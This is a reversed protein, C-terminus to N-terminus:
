VEELIKAVYDHSAKDLEDNVNPATCGACRGTKEQQCDTSNVHPITVGYRTLHSVAFPQRNYCGPHAHQSLNMGGAGDFVDRALGHWRAM